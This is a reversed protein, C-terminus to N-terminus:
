LMCVGAVGYCRLPSFAFLCLFVFMYDIYFLFLFLIISSLYLSSRFLCVFSFCTTQIPLCLLLLSAFVYESFSILCLAFFLVSFFVGVTSSFYGPSLTSDSGHEGMPDSDHVRGQLHHSLCSLLCRFSSVFCFWLSIVYTISRLFFFYVPLVSLVLCAPEGGGRCLQKRSFLFSRFSHWCFRFWPALLGCEFCGCCNATGTALAPTWQDAQYRAVRDAM